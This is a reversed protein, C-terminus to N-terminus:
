ATSAGAPQAEKQEVQEVIEAELFNSSRLDRDRIENHTRISATQITAEFWSAEPHAPDIDGKTTIDTFHGRVTMMGLHKAAFEVQLHLPDIQWNM